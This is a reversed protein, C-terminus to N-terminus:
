EQGRDEETVGRGDVQGPRNFDHRSHQAILKDARRWESALRPSGRCTEPLITEPHLVRSTVRPRRSSLRRTCRGPPSAVARSGGGTHLWARPRARRGKSKRRRPVSGCPWAPLGVGVRECQSIACQLAPRRGALYRPPDRWNPGHRGGQVPQHQVSGAPGRPPDRWNPGHGGCSRLQCLGPAALPTGGTQATGGLYQSQEVGGRRHATESRTGGGM